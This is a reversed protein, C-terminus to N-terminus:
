IVAFMRADSMVTAPVKGTVTVFGPGPPPVEADLVNVTSLGTGVRVESEGLLVVAPPGVKV